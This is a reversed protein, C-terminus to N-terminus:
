EPGIAELIADKKAAWDEPTLELIRRLVDRRETWVADPTKLVVNALGIRQRGITLDTKGQRRWEAEMASGADLMRARTETPNALRAPPTPASPENVGEKYALKQVAVMDRCTEYDAPQLNHGFYVNFGVTSKGIVRDRYWALSLPGYGPPSPADYVGLTLAVRELPWGALAAHAICREPTYSEATQGFQNPYAQPMLWFGAEFFAKANMPPAPPPGSASNVHFLLNSGSACGFTSFGLPFAPGVLERLRRAYVTSRGPDGRWDRHHHQEVDAIWGALKYRKVAAADAEADALPDTGMVSWGVIAIKGGREADARWQTGPELEASVDYDVGENRIQFAVWGVNARELLPPLELRDFHGPITAWSGVRQWLHIAM